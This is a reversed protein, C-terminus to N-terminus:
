DVGMIVAAPFLQSAGNDLKTKRVNGSCSGQVLLGSIVSYNPLNGESRVKSKVRQTLYLGLKDSTGTM